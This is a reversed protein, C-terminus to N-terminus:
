AGRSYSAPWRPGPLVRDTLSSGDSTRVTANGTEVSETHVPVRHSSHHREASAGVVQLSGAVTRAPLRRHCRAAGPTSHLSARSEPTPSAYRIRSITARIS